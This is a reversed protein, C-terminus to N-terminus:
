RLGFTVTYSQHLAKAFDTAFARLGEDRGAFGGPDGLGHRGPPLPM